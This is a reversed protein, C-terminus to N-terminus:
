PRLMLAPSLQNDILHVVQDEVESADSPALSACTDVSLVFADAMDMDQWYYAIVSNGLLCAAYADPTEQAQVPLALLAAVAAIRLM